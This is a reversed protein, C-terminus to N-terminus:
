GNDACLVYRIDIAKKKIFEDIIIQLSDVANKQDQVNKELEIEKEILSKIQLM